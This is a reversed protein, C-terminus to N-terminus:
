QWCSLIFAFLMLRTLDVACALVALYNISMTPMM